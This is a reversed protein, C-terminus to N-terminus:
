KKRPWSIATTPPPSEAISSATNRVLNALLTVMTCRRSVSRADFIMSLPARVLLDRPQEIGLDVLDLIGALAFDGRHDDLV